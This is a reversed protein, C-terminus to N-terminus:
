DNTSVEGAGRPEEIQPKAAFEIAAILQQRASEWDGGFCLEEIAMRAAAILRQQKEEYDNLFDCVRWAEAGTNCTAITVIPTGHMDYIAGDSAHLYRPESM